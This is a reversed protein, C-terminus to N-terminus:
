HYTPALVKLKKESIKLFKLLELSYAVYLFPCLVFSHFSAFLWPTLFYFMEANGSDKERRKREDGRRWASPLWERVETTIIEMRKLIIKGILCENWFVIM